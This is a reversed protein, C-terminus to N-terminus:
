RRVHRARDILCASQIAATRLSCKRCGRQLRYCICRNPPEQRPGPFNKAIQRGSLCAPEQPARCRGHDLSAPGLSHGLCCLLKALPVSGPQWHGIRIRGSFIDVGGHRRECDTTHQTSTAPEPTGTGHGLRRILDCFIVHVLMRVADEVPRTASERRRLLESPRRGACHDHVTLTTCIRCKGIGFIRCRDSHLHGVQRARGINQREILAGSWRRQRLLEFRHLSRLLCLEIRRSRVHQGLCRKGPELFALREHRRRCVSAHRRKGANRVDYRLRNRCRFSCSRQLTHVQGIQVLSPPM